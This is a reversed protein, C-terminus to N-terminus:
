RRRGEGSPHRIRLMSPAVIRDAPLVEILRDYTQQPQLMDTIVAMDVHGAEDINRVVKCGCHTDGQFEPAFVAVLEIDFETASLIAVECMDGAGCLLIRKKGRSALEYFLETCQNRATRFFQFGSVFFNAALRSKEAFGKPTLYYAYRRAPVKTAKLYGKRLCRKMYANVLGVAIGLERALMRQTVTSRAELTELMRMTAFAESDSPASAPDATMAHVIKDNM